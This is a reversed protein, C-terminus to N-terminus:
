QDNPQCGPEMTGVSCAAGEGAVMRSYQQIFCQVLKAERGRWVRKGGVICQPEPIAPDGIGDFTQRRLVLRQWDFDSGAVRKQLMFNGPHWRSNGDERKASDRVGGHQRRETQFGPVAFKLVSRFVCQWLTLRQEITVMARTVIGIGPAKSFLHKMRHKGANARM